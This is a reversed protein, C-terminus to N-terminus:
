AALGAGHEHALFLGADDPAPRYRGSSPCRVWRALAVLAGSAADRAVIRFGEYPEGMPTLFREVLTAQARMIPGLEENGMVIEHGLSPVRLCPRWGLGESGRVLVGLTMSVRFSSVVVV